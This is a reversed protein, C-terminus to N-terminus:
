FYALASGKDLSLAQRLAVEAAVYDGARYHATGLTRFLAASRPYARVAPTLLEVALATQNHQLSLVTAVLAAQERDPAAAIARTLLESLIALVERLDQNAIYIQLRDDGEGAHLPTIAAKARIPCRSRWRRCALAVLFLRPLTGELEWSDRGRRTVLM